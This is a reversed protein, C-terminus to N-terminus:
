RAKSDSAAKMKSGSKSADRRTTPRSRASLLPAAQKWQAMAEPDNKRHRPRPKLYSYGLRRLLDYAGPLSYELGFERRLIRQIDRGRLTCIGDATVPGADLRAKFTAEDARSLKPPQGPRPREGLGALGEERYRYVWKQVFPRSRDLKDVISATTLGELALLVVRYRDRQKAKRETRIWRRLENLDARDHPEVDM